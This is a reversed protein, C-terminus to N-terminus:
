DYTSERGSDPLVCVLDRLSSSKSFYDRKNPVTQTECAWTHVAGANLRATGLSLLAM